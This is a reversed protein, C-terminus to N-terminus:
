TPPQRSALRWSGPVYLGLYSYDLNNSPTVRMMYVTVINPRISTRKFTAVLADEVSPAYVLVTRVADESGYARYSLLYYHDSVAGGM